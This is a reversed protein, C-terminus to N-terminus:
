IPLIKPHYRQSSTIKRQQTQWALGMGKVIPKMAVYHEKDVEATILDNEYFPVTHIEYMKENRMTSFFACPLGKFNYLFM